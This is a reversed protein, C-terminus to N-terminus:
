IAIAAASTLRRCALWRSFPVSRTVTVPTGVSQGDASSVLLDTSQTHRSPPPRRRPSCVSTEAVGRGCMGNLQMETCDGSSRAIPKQSLADPDLIRKPGSPTRRTLPRTSAYESRRHAPLQPRAMSSCDRKLLVHLTSKCHGTLSSRIKSDRDLSVKGTAINQT